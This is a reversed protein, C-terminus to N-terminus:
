RQTDKGTTNTNGGRRKRMKRTKEGEREKAKLLRRDSFGGLLDKTM